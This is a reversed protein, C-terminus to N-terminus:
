AYLVTPLGHRTLYDDLLQTTDNSSAGGAHADAFEARLAALAPDAPLNAAIEAALVSAGMTHNGDVRRITAAIHEILDINV